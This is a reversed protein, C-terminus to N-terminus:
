IKNIKTKVEISQKDHKNELNETLDTHNIWKEIYKFDLKPEETLGIMYILFKKLKQSYNDINLKEDILVDLDNKYFRIEVIAKPRDILELSSWVNYKKAMSGSFVEIWKQIKSEEKGQLIKSAKRVNFRQSFIVYGPEEIDLEISHFRNKINPFFDFYPMLKDENNGYLKIIFYEASEGTKGKLQNKRSKFFKIYFKEKEVTSYDSQEVINKVKNFNTSYAELISVPLNELLKIKDNNSASLSEVFDIVDDQEYRKVLYDILKFYEKDKISDSKFKDNACKKKINKESFEGNGIINLSSYELSFRSNGYEKRYQNEYSDKHVFYYYSNKSYLQYDNEKLYNIFEEKEKLFKEKAM